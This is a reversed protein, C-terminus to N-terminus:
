WCHFWWADSSSARQAPFGSILLALTNRLCIVWQTSLTRTMVDDMPHMISIISILNLLKHLQTRSSLRECLSRHQIARIQLSYSMTHYHIQSTHVTDTQAMFLCSHKSNIFWNVVSHYNWINLWPSMLSKINKPHPHNLRRIDNYQTCTHKCTKIITRFPTKRLSQIIIIIRAFNSQNICKSAKKNSKTRLYPREEQCEWTIQM